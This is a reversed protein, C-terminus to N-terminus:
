KLFEGVFGLIGGRSFFRNYSKSYIFNNMIIPNSVLPFTLDYRKIKKDSNNYNITHTAGGGFGLNTILNVKPVICHGSNVICTFIWQYDWTDMKNSKLLKYLRKGLIGEFPPNKVLKIQGTTKMEEYGKLDIDYLKWSRKWTAWGWANFRDSFFYDVGIKSGEEVNTGSIQMIRKDDRYKKLMEDCFKFFSQSPLCDDELIIGEEVNDFFWDIAGAVANKCGLNKDRFLKKVRCPWDINELIYKRVDDTKVREEPTRPGDAAIFLKKPRARRIEEFTLKTVDLRNFILFLVPSDFHHNM